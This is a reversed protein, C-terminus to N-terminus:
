ETAPTSAKSPTEGRPELARVFFRVANAIVDKRDAGRSAADVAGGIASVMIAGVIEPDYDGAIAGRFILDRLGRAWGEAWQRPLDVAEEPAIASMDSVATRLVGPNEAQYDLMADILAAFFTELRDAGSLRPLLFRDLEQRAAAVFALFCAQKDAFYLYFTGHGLGALRAIDQPRTLHYGRSVFLSRAATLLRERTADRGGPLPAATIPM